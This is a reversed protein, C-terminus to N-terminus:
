RRRHWSRQPDGAWRPLPYRTALAHLRAVGLHGPVADAALELWQTARTGRARFRELHATAVWLWAEADAGAASRWGEEDAGHLLDLLLELVGECQQVREWDPTGEWEGKLVELMWGLDAGHGAGHAMAQLQWWARLCRDHEGSLASVALADSGLPDTLCVLLQAQAAADSSAVREAASRSSSASLLRQWAELSEAVPVAVDRHLCQAAQPGAVGPRLSWRQEFEGVLARCDEVRLESRGPEARAPRVEAASADVSSGTVVLAAWVASSRIEQMDRAIRPEAESLDSWQEQGVEWCGAMGYGSLAAAEGVADVVQDHQLPSLPSGDTFLALYVLEGAPVRELLDCLEAIWELLALEDALVAETPLDVRLCPGPETDTCTLLVVSRRPWQGLTHPMIALVDAATRAVPTFPDHDPERESGTRVPHTSDSHAADTSM